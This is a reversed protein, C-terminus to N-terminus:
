RRLLSYLFEQAQNDNDGSGLAMIFEEVTKSKTQDSLSNNGQLYDALKECAFLARHYAHSPSYRSSLLPFSNALKWMPQKAQPFFKECLKSCRTDSVKDHLNLFLFYTKSRKKATSIDIYEERCALRRWPAFWPWTLWNVVLFLLITVIFTMAFTAIKKKTAM